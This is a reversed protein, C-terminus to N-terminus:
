EPKIGAQKIVKTWKVIEAELFKGFEAPGMYAEEVGQSTLLKQVQTSALITKLDRDLRDVVPKPTGTPAFIGIFNEAEYGPVGAESITPVDPLLVSRKKAGIGLVRLQGSQIFPLLSVLGNFVIQSHGGVVDIQTTAGGKFQVTKVDIGTMMQFLAGGLHAFGGVGSSAVVLQGPKEKALRILEQVSKVPLGPYVGLAIPGTATNALPSFSKLSYPLNSYIASSFCFANNVLLLTYGDPKSNAVMETAITGGAGGHNEVVVQKGLKEGLQAAMIRGVIDMGGGPAFPIMLRVPKSPYTDVAAAAPPLILLSVTLLVGFGMFLQANGNKM